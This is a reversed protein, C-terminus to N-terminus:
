PVALRAAFESIDPHYYRMVMRTDSHGVIAALEHAQFKPALRTLGEHRLDHVRLDRFAKKIPDVGADLCLAAYRHRCRRRARIFMRTIAGASVSFVRGEVGEHHMARLEKIAVPSLPVTRSKGNKTIPLYATCADFDVHEWLLGVLESRRMATEAAIFVFHRFEPNRVVTIMWELESVPHGPINLNTLPRRDRSNNIKPKRILQVPNRLDEYGWEKCAINFLHSLLALRRTVTAAALTRMWEDRLKVLQPPRIQSLEMDALDTALWSRAISREQYGSRKDRSIEILYRAFADRLTFALNPQRKFYGLVSYILPKM